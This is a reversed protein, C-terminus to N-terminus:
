KITIRIYKIRGAMAASGSPLPDWTFFFNAISPFSTLGFFTTKISFCFIIDRDTSRILFVKTSMTNKEIHLPM